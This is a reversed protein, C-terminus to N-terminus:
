QLLRGHTIRYTKGHDRVKHYTGDKSRRCTKGRYTPSECKSRYYGVHQCLGSYSRVKGRCLKKLLGHVWRMYLSRSQLAPYIMHTSVYSRLLERLHPYPFLVLLGDWFQFHTEIHDSTPKDPYNYALAFLFDAGPVVKLQKPTYALLGRYKAEIEEFSPDPGPDRVNSDTKSQERLKKNVRNHLLYLWKAINQRMPHLPLDKEMFETTSARCFKCPLIDKINNFFLELARQTPVDEKSRQSHAILHFLQWASPGWFRTDM